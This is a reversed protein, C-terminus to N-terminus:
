DRPAQEERERIRECGYITHTGNHQFAPGSKEIFTVCEEFTGSSIIHYNVLEQSDNSFEYQMVYYMGGRDIKPMDLSYARRCQAVLAILLIIVAVAYLYLKRNM